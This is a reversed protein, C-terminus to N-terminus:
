AAVETVSLKIIQDQLDRICTTYGGPNQGKLRQILSAQRTCTFTDFNSPFKFPM